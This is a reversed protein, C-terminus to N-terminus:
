LVSNGQTMACHSTSAPGACCSNAWSGSISGASVLPLLFCVIARLTFTVAGLFTCLTLLCLCRWAGGAGAPVWAASTLTLNAAQKGVTACDCVVVHMHVASRDSEQTRAHMAATCTNTNCWICQIRYDGECENGDHCACRVMIHTCCSPTAPACSALEQQVSGYQM